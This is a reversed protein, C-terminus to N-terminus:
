IKGRINRNKSDKLLWKFSLKKFFRDNEKIM